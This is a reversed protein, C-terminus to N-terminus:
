TVPVYQETCLRYLETGRESDGEQEEETIDKPVEEEGEQCGTQRASCYLGMRFYAPTGRAGRM